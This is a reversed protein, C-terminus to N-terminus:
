KEGSSTLGNAYATVMYRLSDDPRLDIGFAGSLELLAYGHVLCRLGRVAHIAEDGSLGFPEIVKVILRLIDESAAELRPDRLKACATMAEYMGPHERVFAVYAATIDMVAERGTRGVAAETLAQHLLQLGKMAIAIQLEPLGAIHNYLSPTRVGLAGAVAALTAQSYGQEDAIRAAAAVVTGSDLGARPSM